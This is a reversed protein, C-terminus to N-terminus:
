RGVACEFSPLSVQGLPSLDFILPVDPDHESIDCLRLTLSTLTSGRDGLMRVQLWPRVNLMHGADCLRARLSVSICACILTM